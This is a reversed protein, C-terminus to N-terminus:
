LGKVKSAIEIAITENYECTIKNIFFLQV